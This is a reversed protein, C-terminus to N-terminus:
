EGLTCAVARLRYGLDYEFILEEISRRGEKSCYLKCLKPPLYDTAVQGFPDKLQVYNVLSDLATICTDIHRVGFGCEQLMQNLTKISFYTLHNRGSFTRCTKHMFMVALSYVNPVIVAVAGGVRLVRAVERLAEKPKSLHELVGLMTVVDFAGTELAAEALTKRIVTLGRQEKAYEFATKELEIGQCEYGRQEALEMFTGVSCGIDLLRGAPIQKQLLDLIESFYEIRWAQDAPNLLVKMWEAASSPGEQKYYQEIESVKPQPNVFVLCCKRCRVFDFGQKAFLHEHSEKGCLPCPIWQVLEDKVKGSRPDILTELEKSMLDFFKDRGTEKDFNM